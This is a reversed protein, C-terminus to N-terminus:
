GSIKGPSGASAVASSAVKGKPEEGLVTRDDIWTNVEPEHRYFLDLYFKKDGWKVDFDASRKKFQEQHFKLAKTYAEKWDETGYKKLIARNLTESFGPEDQELDYELSTAINSHYEVIKLDDLAADQATDDLEAESKQLLRKELLHIDDKHIKNGKVRIKM